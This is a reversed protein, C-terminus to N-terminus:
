EKVEAEKTQDLRQVLEPFAGRLWDTAVKSHPLIQSGKWAPSDYPSFLVEVFLLAVVVILAGRLAGFGVGLLHNVGSLGTKGVLKVLGRSIINGVLIISILLVVFILGLRLPESAIFSALYGSLHTSFSISIWIALVWTVLSIVERVFGRIFGIVVSIAIVALIGVDVWNLASVDFM